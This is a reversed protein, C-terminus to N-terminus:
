RRRRQTAHWLRGQLHARRLLRRKCVLARVARRGHRGSFRQHAPARGPRRPSCPAPLDVCATTYLLGVHQLLPRVEIHTGVLCAVGESWWTQGGRALCITLQTDDTTRGGPQWRGRYSSDPMRVAAQAKALSVTGRSRELGAGAADGCAAGLLAGLACDEGSLPM